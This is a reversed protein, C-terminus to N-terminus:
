VFAKITNAIQEEISLLDHNISAAIGNFGQYDGYYSNEADFGISINMDVQDVVKKVTEALDLISILTGGSDINLSKGQMALNLIVIMLDVGDIYTRKSHPSNVRIHDNKLAQSIFNSLALNKFENLYYGSVSYIRCNIFNTGVKAAEQEFDIESRRKLMSYADVPSKNSDQDVLAAAGSSLNVFSSLGAKRLARTPLAMIELNRATFESEGISKIFERRLFACNVFIAGNKIRVEGRIPDLIDFYKGSIQIKGSKSGILLIKEFLIEPVIKLIAEVTSRGLWGNAGYVVLQTIETIKM